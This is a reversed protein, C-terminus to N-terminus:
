VRVCCVLQDTNILEVLCPAAQLGGCRRVQDDIVELKAQVLKRAENSATASITAM